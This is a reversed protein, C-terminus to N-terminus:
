TLVYTNWAAPSMTIGSGSSKVEISANSPTVAFSVKNTSSVTMSAVNNWWYKGSGGNLASSLKAESTSDGTVNSSWVLMGAILIM